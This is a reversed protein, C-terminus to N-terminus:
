TIINMKSESQKNNILKKQNIWVSSGDIFGVSFGVSSGVSFGVSLIYQIRIINLPNTNWTVM